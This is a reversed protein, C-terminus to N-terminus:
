PKGQGGHEGDSRGLRSRKQETKAKIDGIIAKAIFAVAVYMGILPGGGIIGTFVWAMLAMTHAFLRSHHQDLEAAGGMIAFPFGVLLFIVISPILVIGGFITKTVFRHL